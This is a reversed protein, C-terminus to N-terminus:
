ERTIRKYNGQLLSDLKEIKDNGHFYKKMGM